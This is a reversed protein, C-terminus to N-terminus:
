PKEFIDEFEIDFGAKRAKEAKQDEAEKRTKQGHEELHKEVADATTLGESIWNELIKSMYPLSPKSILAITRDYALSIMEESVKWEREWKEVLLQESKTFARDGAGIVRKVAREFTQYDEKAKLYCELEKYTVVGDNHIGEATKKIYTMRTKGVSACHAIIGMIVDSQMGLNDYLYLLQAQKSANPLEGLTQEAFKVIQDFEMDKRANAVDLTSYSEEDSVEPKVQMKEPKKKVQKAIRVGDETECIVGTGRWFALASSIMEPTESLDTAAKDADFEAGKAFIYMILRLEVKKANNIYKLVDKPMLFVGDVDKNSFM